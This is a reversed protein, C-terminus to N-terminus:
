AEKEAMEIMPEVSSSMRRQKLWLMVCSPRRGDGLIPSSSILSVLSLRMPVPLRSLSSRGEMEKREDEEGSSAVAPPRGRSRRTGSSAVAKWRKEKTKKEAPLM